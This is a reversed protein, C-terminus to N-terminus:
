EGKIEESLLGSPQSTSTQPIGSVGGGTTVGLHVHANLWTVLSSLFSDLDGGRVFAQTGGAIRLVKGDADYVIRMSGVADSFIVRTRPGEYGPVESGKMEAMKGIYVARAPDGAMFYVEVYEGLEPTVQGGRHRPWAWPGEDESSHGLEAIAVLVRGRGLPDKNDLVKGSYHRLFRTENRVIEEIIGLETRSIDM